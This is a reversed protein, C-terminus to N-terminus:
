KAVFEPPRLGKYFIGALVTAPISTMMSIFALWTTALLYLVGGGQEASSASVMSAVLNVALNNILMVPLGTLLIAGLMRLVNGRSWSWTQFLVIRREGMTAANILFLRVFVFMAVVFVIMIFLSLAASGEEGLVELLKASMAEPDALLINWEAPTANFRSFVTISLVIAVLAVIPVFLCMLAGFAGLLRLEDLGAALGTPGLYENRLFKRFVAATFAIGALLTPIMVVIDGVFLGLVTPQADAPAMLNLLLGLQSILAAIGAAPLFLKWNGAFFLWADRVCAIIPVKGATSDTM